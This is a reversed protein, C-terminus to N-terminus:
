LIKFPPPDVTFPSLEKGRITVAEACNTCMRVIMLRDDVAMVRTLEFRLREIERKTGRVRFVSFQVPYGWASLVKRVQRLRVEDFVDYFALHWHKPEPM